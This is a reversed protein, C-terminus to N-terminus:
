LGVMTVATVRISSVLCVTQISVEPGERCLWLPLRQQNDVTVYGVGVRETIDTRV